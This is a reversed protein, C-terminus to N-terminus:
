AGDKRPILRQAFAGILSESLRARVSMEMELPFFQVVRNITQISGATHMTSFVVHGTEALSLVSEMTESDRIEGVVIINADERMASRIARAYSLTDRGVERQTFISKKDQFIYEIPDEITLVRESRVENIAELMSAMTTSKGSGTPGTILFLGQKAKLARKISTPMGLEILNQIREPVKRLAISIKGTHMYVNGRYSSGDSSIYGFDLELERKFVAIRDRQKYYLLNYLFDFM